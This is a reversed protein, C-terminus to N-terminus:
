PHRTTDRRRMMGCGFMCSRAIVALMSTGFHFSPGSFVKQELRSLRYLTDNIWRPPVNPVSPRVPVLREMWHQGLKFPTMWRFFYRCAELRGGARAVLDRIERRRFRAYHHNLEDHSTWLGRIAPETVIMRGDSKLLDHGRRLAPLAEPFHELVDLMLVLGYRRGPDFSEDFPQVRIRSAWPGTQAVGTSDMEIGEVDGFASLKGFFLGDGCGVDLIRGWDRGPRLRLILDLILDERARWWWHREYLDRYDHAYGPDV